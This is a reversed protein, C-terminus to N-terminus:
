FTDKANKELYEEISLRDYLIIKRQPQSYRIKGNNRLVSLTTKSTIRLMQMAEDGSIWRDLHPTPSQEKIRDVVEEVLAYFAKDELCIVEM